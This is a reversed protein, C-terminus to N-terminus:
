HQILRISKLAQIAWNEDDKVIKKPGSVTAYITLHPWVLYAHIWMLGDNDIYEAAAQDISSDSFIGIKRLRWSQVDKEIRDELRCKATIQLGEQRIYSSLQLLLPEDDMWFSAIKEELRECIMEPVVLQYSSTPKIIKFVMM